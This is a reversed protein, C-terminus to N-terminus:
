KSNSMARWQDNMEFRKEIARRVEPEFDAVAQSAAAPDRHHWYAMADSILDVNHIRQAVTLYEQPNPPATIKAFERASPERLEIPLTDMWVRAQIPDARTLANTYTQYTKVKGKGAPLTTLWSLTAEPDDEAWTQIMVQTLGLAEEPLANAVIIAAQPAKTVLTGLYVEMSSAISKPYDQILAIVEPPSLQEFSPIYGAGYQGEIISLLERLNPVSFALREPDM